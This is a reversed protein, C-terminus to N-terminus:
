RVLKRKRKKFFALLADEYPSDTTIDIYNAGVSEVISHFHKSNKQDEETMTDITKQDIDIMRCVGTELDRAFVLGVAPMKKEVPDQIRIAVLDEKKEALMFDREWSPSLFDSLLFVIARKSQVHQLFHLADAINTQRGVPNYSLLERIICMGHKDGRKAPIYREVRDSFLLLSVKDHNYIASFALLAGIEALRERKTHFHSGFNLSASIDVMLTVTLDREERFTKVYPKGMTATRSWSMARIDDGQIYERIDEVEIGRGKFASKYAGHFLDLVRQKAAIQIRRVTALESPLM